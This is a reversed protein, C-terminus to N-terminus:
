GEIIRKEASDYINNQQEYFIPLGKSSGIICDRQAIKTAEALTSVWGSIKVGFHEKPAISRVVKPFFKAVENLTRMRPVFGSNSKIYVRNQFNGQVYHTHLFKIIDYIEQNTYLPEEIIWKITKGSNYYDELFKKVEATRGQQISKHPIVVDFENILRDAIVNAKSSSGYPFNRVIAVKTPSSPFLGKAERVVELNDENTCLARFAGKFTSMFEHLLHKKDGGKLFTNDIYREIHVM